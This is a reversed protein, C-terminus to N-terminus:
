GTHNIVIDLFLRGDRLHTTYTLERFQDVDTTRKDFVILVLDIVTLDLVVYSSGFLGFRAYTTPTPHIPLLHLIRCGLTEIIHPVQATLDSLKGLFLIIAYGEDDLKKFVVDCQEDLIVLATKTDGFM